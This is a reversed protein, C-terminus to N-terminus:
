EESGGVIQVSVQISIEERLNDVSNQKSKRGGVYVIMVEVRERNDIGMGQRSSVVIMDQNEMMDASNCRWWVGVIM